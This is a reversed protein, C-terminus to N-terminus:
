ADAYELRRRFIAAELCTRAFLTMIAAIFAVAATAPQQSALWTATAVALSSLFQSLIKEVFQKQVYRWFSTATGVQILTDEAYIEVRYTDVALSLRKAADTMTRLAGEARLRLQAMCPSNQRNEVHAEFTNLGDCFVITLATAGVNWYVIRSSVEPTDSFRSLAICEEATGNRPVDAFLTRPEVSPPFSIVVVAYMVNDRGFV